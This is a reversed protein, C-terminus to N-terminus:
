ITFKKVQISVYVNDEERFEDEIIKLLDSSKKEVSELSYGDKEFLVYAIWTYKHIGRESYSIEINYLNDSVSKLDYTVLEVDVEIEKKDKFLTEMEGLITSIEKTM